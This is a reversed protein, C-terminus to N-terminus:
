CRAHTKSKSLQGLRSQCELFRFGCVKNPKDRGTDLYSGRLLEQEEKTYERKEEVKNAVPIPEQFLNNVQCTPEPWAAVDELEPDEEFAAESENAEEDM